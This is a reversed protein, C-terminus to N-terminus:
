LILMADGYSYFRYREHIAEEYARRILEEGVFAGVLLLLSTRPLHFNTILADVIRFHYTPRIYLDTEGSWASLPRGRNRGAATELTRVATTGVAVVRRGHARCDNITTATAAPLECWERHMVHEAPDDSQLPQFTGLGVHLTLMATIVGRDRLRDFVRNTFHLGATPAAVAGPRRAYVTQYRELDGAADRGKRIYPPLPVHGFGSLIDAATGPSEPRFLFHGDPSRGLYKLRFGPSNPDYVTSSNSLGRATPPEPKGTVVIAEGEVLTGRLQCLLEWVGDREGLYLGEWRGGTRERRGLLRAPLVRTDNLVVIDGADLLGPLDLFQRHELAATDRRLVLLRSRDREVAPEQAILESPLDYDLFAM